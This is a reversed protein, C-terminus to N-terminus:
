LLRSTILSSAPIAKGQNARGEAEGPNPFVSSRSCPEEIAIRERPVKAEQRGRAAMPPSPHMKPAVAAVAAAGPNPALSPADFVRRLSGLVSWIYAAYAASTTGLGLGILGLACEGRV